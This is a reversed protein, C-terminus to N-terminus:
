HNNKKTTDIVDNMLCREACTERINEIYNRYENYNVKQDSACNEFQKLDIDLVFHQYPLTPRSVVISGFIKGEVFQNKFYKHIHKLNNQYCCVKGKMQPYHGFAFLKVGKFLNMHTEEWFYLNFEKVFDNFIGKQNNCINRKKYDYGQILPEYRAHSM